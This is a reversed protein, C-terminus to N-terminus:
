SVSLFPNSPIFQDILNFDTQPALDQTSFFSAQMRPPFALQFSFYGVVGIVWFLLIILCAKVAIQKATDRKLSGIGVILSLAVSPLITIQWIKIFAESAPKMVSVLDGFFLGALIGLIFGVLIWSTLNLRPWRM